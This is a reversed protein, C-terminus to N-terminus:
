KAEISRCRAVSIRATGVMVTARSSCGPRAPYSRDDSVAIKDPAAGAGTQSQCLTRASSPTASIVVPYPIVSHPPAIVSVSGSSGSSNWEAVTPRGLSAPAAPTSGM